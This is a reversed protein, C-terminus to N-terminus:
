TMDVDRYGGRMCLAALLISSGRVFPPSEQSPDLEKSMSGAQALCHVRRPPSSSHSDGDSHFLNNDVRMLIITEYGYHVSLNNNSKVLISLATVDM